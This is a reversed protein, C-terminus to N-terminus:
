WFTAFYKWFWKPTNIRPEIDHIKLECYGMGSKWEWVTLLFVNHGIFSLPKICNWYHSRERWDLQMKLVFGAINDKRAFLYMSLTLIYKCYICFINWTLLCPLLVVDNQHRKKLSQICKVGKKVIETASKSDNFTQLDLMVLLLTRLLKGFQQIFTFAAATIKWM